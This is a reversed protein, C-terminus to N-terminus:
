KLIGDVFLDEIGLDNELFMKIRGDNIPKSVKSIGKDNRSVLIVDNLNAEKIIFPNHTTVFIQTKNSVDSLIKVLSSLLKPHINREPEELVIIDNDDQFYLAVIVALINVTGDSLMYSPFEGKNYSEKVKFFVSKNVNNEVNIDDVFPLLTKIIKKLKDKKTKNKLLQQIINVLNAGNEELESRAVISSPSKLLNVDFNYIKIKSDYRFFIGFANFFSKLLNEERRMIKETYNICFFDDEKKELSSFDDIIKGKSDKEIQLVYEKKTAKEKTNKKFKINIKENVIKYGDGYEHPKIKIQYKLFNPLYPSGDEDKFYHTMNNEETSLDVDYYLSVCETKKCNSNFLYKIGGQLLLADDIGYYIIDNFFKLMNVFNSKGSANGGVIFNLKNLEIDIHKYSKYNEAKIRKIIM